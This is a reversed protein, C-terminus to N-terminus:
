TDKYRSSDLPEIDTEHGEHKGHQMTINRRGKDQNHIANHIQHAKSIRVTKGDENEGTRSGQTNGRSM